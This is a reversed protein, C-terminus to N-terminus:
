ILINYVQKKTPNSNSILVPSGWFKVTGTCVPHATIKVASNFKHERNQVPRCKFFYLRNQINVEAIIHTGHFQLLVSGPKRYFPSVARIGSSKRGSLTKEMGSTRRKHLNSRTRRIRCSIWSFWVCWSDSFNKKRTWFAHNLDPQFTLLINKFLFLVSQLFLSHQM